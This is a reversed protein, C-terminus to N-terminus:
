FDQQIRYYIYQVIKNKLKGKIQEPNYAKELRVIYTVYLDGLQSSSQHFPM